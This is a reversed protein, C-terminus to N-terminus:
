ALWSKDDTTWNSVVFAMGHALDNQLSHLVDCQHSTMAVTRGKQIFTTTYSAWNSKFDTDFHMKVHFPLLTNIKYEAGPGFSFKELNKHVDLSCHGLHDCDGYYGNENPV